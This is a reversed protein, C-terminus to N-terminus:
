YIANSHCGQCDCLSQSKYFVGLIFWNRHTMYFTLLHNILQLHFTWIHKSNKIKYKHIGLAWGQTPFCSYKASNLLGFTQTAINEAVEQIESQEGKPWRSSVEEVEETVVDKLNEFYQHFLSTKLREHLIRFVGYLICYFLITYKDLSFQRM